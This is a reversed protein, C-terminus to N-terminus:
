TLLVDLSITANAFKIHNNSQEGWKEMLESYEFEIIELQKMCKEYLMWMSTNVDLPISQHQPVNRNDYTEQVTKLFEEKKM